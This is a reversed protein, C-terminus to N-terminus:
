HGTDRVKKAGQGMRVRVQLAELLAQSDERVDQYPCRLALRLLGDLHCRLQEPSIDSNAPDTAADELTRALSRFAERRAGGDPTWLVSLMQETQARLPLLAM